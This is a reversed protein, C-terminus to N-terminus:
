KTKDRLEGVRQLDVFHTAYSKEIEPNGSKSFRLKIDKAKAWGHYFTWSPKLNNKRAYTRMERMVASLMKLNVKCIRELYDVKGNRWKEYDEKSLVGVVMLVDVPAAYGKSKINQYMAYHVLGTMNARNM